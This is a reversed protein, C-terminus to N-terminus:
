WESTLAFCGPVNKKRMMTSSVRILSEKSQLEQKQKEDDPRVARCKFVEVLCEAYAKSQEVELKYDNYAMVLPMM